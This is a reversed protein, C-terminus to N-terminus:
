ASALKIGSAQNDLIRKLFSAVHAGAEVPPLGGDHINSILSRESEITGRRPRYCMYASMSKATVLGPREGVLMVVAEPELIEGLHDMLGVRGYRSFFTTGPELGHGKLGEVLAPYIDKINAHIATSSLGDVVMIQVRPRAQCRERIVQIAEDSFLRGKDPRTLYEDKDRIQTQVCFFGMEEMLEDEVETLVADRAAGHDARFRLWPETRPRVGTRGVGLRGPTTKKLEMLGRPDQAEPLFHRERLDYAAIDSLVEQGTAGGERTGQGRESELQNLVARVLEKIEQEKAM